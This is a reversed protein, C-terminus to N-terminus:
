SRGRRTSFYATVVCVFWAPAPTPISAAIRLGAEPYGGLFGSQGGALAHTGNQLYLMAAIPDSVPSGAFAGQTLVTFHTNNTLNPYEAVIEQTGGATDFLGWPSMDFYAGLPIDRAQSEYVSIPLGTSSQASLESPYGPTPPEDSAYHRDWWGGQNTGARNPDFYAAKSWEDLTPIWFCAGAEHTIKDTYSNTGPENGWTTTDYAGGLLTGWDSSKGNHLWNCYLAAMRWSIGWVPINQPEPVDSRLEFTATQAAPDRISARGGFWTPGLYFEGLNDLGILRAVNQPMPRPAFTNLFEVWEGSTVETRAIRYQYSVSGRGIRDNGFGTWDATSRPYGANGEAAVTVFETGYEHSVQVGAPAPPLAAASSAPLALVALAILRKM